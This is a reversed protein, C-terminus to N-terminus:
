EDGALAGRQRLSRPALPRSTTATLTKAPQGVIPRAHDCPPIYAARTIGQIMMATTATGSMTTAKMAMRLVAM